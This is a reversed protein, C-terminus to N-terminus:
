RILDIVSVEKEKGKDRFIETMELNNILPATNDEENANIQALYNM